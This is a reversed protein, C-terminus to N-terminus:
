LNILSAGSIEPRVLMLIIANVPRAIPKPLMSTVIKFRDQDEPELMRMLYFLGFLVILSASGGLLIAWLPALEAAIFHATLAALTSIFAIKAIHMWPLKVKYLHIGVVWMTGVAFVQAAGSGICAGVAGHAPILYWAVAIDLIGAFVTAAIVYSQREASQLLSQVPGIFAKPMCLLPALTAVMVAGEYKSGYLLLLAPGALASAIFHLPISTLALYRVTSATIASLRSKDRGYQAFITVTAAAGFVSASLLLQEAMSFALSYFAIQRIDSCLHKLLVVESRNWVILAVIMSAVSQWAFSLMRAPLGEPQVHATEWSLVERMSPILRILFDIVRMGLFAAGVGVVGWKFILTVGIFALYVFTSVVSAPVNKSMKETAINAMASISNVMSPWISLAILVAATKYDADADRMVWLLIGGTALTAVVIQLLLTRFYIYRATGRDGMGLFEAMYKHTTAPIGLGGLSSVVNAIWMVYIIYGMKSPGLARAILVSTLFGAASSVINELGYWGTNKVITKINSM